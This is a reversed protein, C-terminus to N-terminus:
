LKQSSMESLPESDLEILKKFYESIRDEGTIFSEFSRQAQEEGLDTIIYKYLQFYGSAVGLEYARYERSDRIITDFEKSIFRSVKSM